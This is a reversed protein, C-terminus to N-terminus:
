ISARAHLLAFFAFLSLPPYTLPHSLYSNTLAWDVVFTLSLPTGIYVGEEGVEPLDKATVLYIFSLFPVPFPSLCCFEPLVSQKIIFVGHSCTVTGTHCTWRESYRPTPAPPLPTPAPRQYGCQALCCYPFAAASYHRTYGPFTFSPVCVSFPGQNCHCTHQYFQLSVSVQYM